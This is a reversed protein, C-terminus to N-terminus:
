SANQVRHRWRLTVLLVTLLVALLIAGSCAMTLVSPKRIIHVYTGTFHGGNFDWPCDLKSESHAAIKGNGLYLAVHDITGNSNWDYGIVDGASLDACSSQKVALGSTLLWNCLRAAGPEGYTGARNPVDLGGGREHPESGICSSVFHACDDGTVDSPVPAGQGLHRTHQSADWFYGDGVVHYAHKRAYAVAASPSYGRPFVGLAFLGSAVVGIILVTFLIAKKM